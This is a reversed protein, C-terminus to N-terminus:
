LAEILKLFIESSHSSGLSYKPYSQKDLYCMMTTITALPKLINSIEQSESNLGTFFVLESTNRKVTLRAFELLDEYNFLTAKLTLNRYSISPTGYFSGAVSRTQVGNTDYQITFEDIACETPIFTKGANMYGIKPAESTGYIYVNVYRAHVTEFIKHTSNYPEVDNTDAYFGGFGTLGFPMLGFGDDLTGATYCKNFVTNNAGDKLVICITATIVINHNYIVLSNIPKDVSLDFSFSNFGSYQGVWQEWILNNTLYEPNSGSATSPMSTNNTSNLLFDWTIAFM